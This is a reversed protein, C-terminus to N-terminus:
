NTSTAKQNRVDLKNVVQQVHPVAAAIKQAEARSAQSNVEGKLTVVGNKVDYHVLKNLRKQKLAADLDNGIAKDFDSNISKALDDNAPVVAIESSVVQGAAASKAVTTARAKDQESQVNGTITVVGKDQEESVHINRLGAQDLSKRVDSTVDPSKPRNTCGGVLVALVMPVILPAEIKM